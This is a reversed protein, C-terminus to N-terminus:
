RKGKSRISYEYEPQLMRLYAKKNTFAMDKAIEHGWDAKYVTVKIDKLIRSIEDILGDLALRKYEDPYKEDQYKEEEFELDLYFHERDDTIRHERFHKHIEREALVMDSVRWCWHLRMPYRLSASLETCRRVPNCSYGIKVSNDMDTNTMLYIYEDM